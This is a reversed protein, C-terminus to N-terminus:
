GNNQRKLTLIRAIDRRTKKLSATNTLRGNKLDFRMELLQKRLKLEEHNIQEKTM